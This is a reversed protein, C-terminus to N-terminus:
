RANAWVGAAESTGSLADRLESYKLEVPLVALEFAAHSVYGTLYIRVSDKTLAFSMGEPNELIQEKTMEALQKEEETGAELKAIVKNALQKGSPDSLVDAKLLNGTKLSFSRVYLSNNPHAAGAYYSDETDEISLVGKENFIVKQSPNVDFAQDCGYAQLDKLTEPVLADNIAKAAADSIGSVKIYNGKMACTTMTDGASTDKAPRNEDIAVEQVTASQAGQPAAEINDSGTQADAESTSGCGVAFATLGALALSVIITKM